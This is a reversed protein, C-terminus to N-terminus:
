KLIIQLNVSNVLGSLNHEVSPGRRRSNNEAHVKAGCGSAYHPEAPTCSWSSYPQAFRCTHAPTEILAAGANKCGYKSNRSMGLFVWGDLPKKNGISM